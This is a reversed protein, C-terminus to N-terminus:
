AHGKFGHLCFVWQLPWGCANRLNKRPTVTPIPSLCTLLFQNNISMKQNRKPLLRHDASNGGKNVTIKAHDQFRSFPLLFSEGYASECPCSVVLTAPSKYATDMIQVGLALFHGPKGGRKDRNLWSFWAHAQMPKVRQLYNARFIAPSNGSEDAVRPLGACEAVRYSIFSHRLANKKGDVGADAAPQMLQNLLNKFPCVPGREKALPLLQATLNDQIPVLCPPDTEPQDAAVEIFGGALDIQSCHLPKIEGGRL